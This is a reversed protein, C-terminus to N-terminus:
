VILLFYKYINSVYQVTERGIIKAAAVEVNGFWINPNLKMTKTRKRLKRVKAPGANYAAFSFLMQNLLDIESKDFYRKHLFHLYRTGAHINNELKHIDPINVNPDKATSPLIQMIGVAGAKSRKSHDLQSEQYALAGLMLVDFAYQDAYKKFLNLTDQFKKIEGPSMTNRAWKNHKLYRKFIINGFLTGKKHKKIFSNLQQKLQPSNKRIAWGISGGTNVAIDSYVRIQDFVEVWFKAKHSDVIVMPIMSANVMELLDADELYEDAAIIQVPKLNQEKFQQNLRQLSSYYSSSQRVHLTKGSLDQLTKVPPAHIGTVLVEDVGSFVPDSFDVQQKRVATITLNSVAIDGLGKILAPILEDRRVPIFVVKIKLTGNNLKKNLYNEFTKLAEYSAGRQRMADLFYLMKNYVVLVRILRRQKMGEFDGLWPADALFIERGDATVPIQEILDQAKQAAISPDINANDPAAFVPNHTLFLLCLFYYLPKM